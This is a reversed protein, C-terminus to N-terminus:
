AHLFGQLVLTEFSQFVYNEELFPVKKVNQSNAKTSFL